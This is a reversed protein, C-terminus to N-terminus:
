EQGKKIEEVFNEIAKLTKTKEKKNKNQKRIFKQIKSTIEPFAYMGPLDLLYKSDEENPGLKEIKKWLEMRVKTDTNKQFFRILVQLAKRNSISGTEIRRFLEKIAGSEGMEGLEILNHENCISFCEKWFQTRLSPDKELIDKATNLMRYFNDFNLNDRTLFEMLADRRLINYEINQVIYLLSKTSFSKKNRNWLRQLKIKPSEQERYRKLRKRTESDTFRKIRKMSM